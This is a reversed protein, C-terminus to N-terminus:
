SAEGTAAVVPKARRLGGRAFAPLVFLLLPMAVMWAVAVAALAVPESPGLTVAGLRAGALYSLPGGVAGALMAAVPRRGLWALADIALAFNVWLALMWLPVAWGLSAQAPFTLVGALTLSGDFVLGMLAAAVLTLALGRRDARAVLHAAAVLLVVLVGVLPRGAAAGLVCAFWGAQLSLFTFLSAM